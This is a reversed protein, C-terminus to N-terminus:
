TNHFLDGTLEVLIRNFFFHLYLAVVTVVLSVRIKCDFLSLSVLIFSFLIQFGGTSAHLGSM